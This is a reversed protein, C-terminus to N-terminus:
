CISENKVSQNIASTKVAHTSPTGTSKDVASAGVRKSPYSNGTLMSSRLKVGRIAVKMWILFVLVCTSITYTLWMVLQFWFGTLGAAIAVVYLSLGLFISVGSCCGFRAVFPFSPDADGKLDVQMTWIFKSYSAMLISDFVFTALLAICSLVQEVISIIPVTDSLREPWLLLIADITAPLVPAFVIFPMVRLFRELVKSVSPYLRKVIKLGRAASYHIFSCEAMAVLLDNVAQLIWPLNPNELAHVQVLFSVYLGMMSLSYVLLNLNFTQLLRTTFSQGDKSAGDVTIIYVIHFILCSTPFVLGLGGLIALIQAEQFTVTTLVFSM